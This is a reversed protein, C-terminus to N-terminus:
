RKMTPKLAMVCFSTVAPQGRDIAEFSGDEKQQQTALWKLGRGVSDDLQKWQKETLVDRSPAPRAELAPQASLTSASVITTLLFFAARFVSM